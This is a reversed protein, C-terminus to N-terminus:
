WGQLQLPHPQVLRHQWINDLCNYKLLANHLIIEVQDHLIELIHKTQFELLFPPPPINNATLIQLTTIYM